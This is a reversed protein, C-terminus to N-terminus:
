LEFYLELRDSEEGLLFQGLELMVDVEVVEFSLVVNKHEPWANVVVDLVLYGPYEPFLVGCFQSPIQESGIPCLRIFKPLEFDDIRVGILIYHGPVSTCTVLRKLGDIPKIDKSPKIIVLPIIKVKLSIDGENVEKILSILRSHQIQGLAEVNEILGIFM